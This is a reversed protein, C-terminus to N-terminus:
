TSLLTLCVGVVTAVGAMNKGREFAFPMLSNTLMALLGGAAISALRDGQATSTADTALFGLASAVGCALVVAL